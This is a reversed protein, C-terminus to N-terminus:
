ARSWRPAFLLVLLTRPIGHTLCRIVSRWDRVNAHVSQDYVQASYRSLGVTFVNQGVYDSFGDDKKRDSLPELIDFPMRDRASSAGHKGFRRLYGTAYASYIRFLIM